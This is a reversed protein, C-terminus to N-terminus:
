KCSFEYVRDIAAKASQMQADDTAAGIHPTSVVRPHDWLSEYKEKTPPEVEHADIGAGWMLGNSLATCLDAENVIGGRAANIIIANRKMTSMEKYTIMDRTADVLPVHISLIDASSIVEAPTMARTHTIDAWAENPLYPDYAIVAANFAGQFLRAVCTAINGM